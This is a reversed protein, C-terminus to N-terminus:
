PLSGRYKASPALNSSASRWFSMRRSLLGSCDVPSQWGDVGRGPELFSVLVTQQHSRFARCFCFGSALPMRPSYYNTLFRLKAGIGSLRDVRCKVCLLRQLLRQLSSFTFSCCEGCFRVTKGYYGWIADLTLALTAAAGRRARPYGERPPPTYTDAHRLTARPIRATTHPQSYPRTQSAAIRTSQTHTHRPRPRRHRQRDIRGHSDTM